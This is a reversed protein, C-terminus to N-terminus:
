LCAHQAQFSPEKNLYVREVRLKLCCWFYGLEHNSTFIKFYNSISAVPVFSKM